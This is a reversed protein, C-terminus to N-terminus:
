QGLSVRAITLPSLTGSRVVLRGARDRATLRFLRLGGVTDAAKPDAKAGRLDFLDVKGTWGAPMDLALRGNEWHLFAEARAPASHPRVGIATVGSGLIAELAGSLYAYPANWNIAIENSAYANQDDLYSLAPIISPYGPTKDEQGPNSGGVLLGPVPERVGDAASPRHHPFMPTNSGYGTVFSYGTANRGLLYDLANVASWLYTSDGTHRFAQLLLMGQNADGSNSGWYFDNNSMPVAYASTDARARIPDAVTMLMKKLTDANIRSYGADKADALSYIGLALVNSWSPVSFTPPLAGPVAAVYFSDEGTALYLEAGAWFFEDVASNDGYEGTNIAPTFSKNIDAQRYYQTPHLRAWDWAKRAIALASDAFGPLPGDFKRFLRSAYAATAALDLSATVSKKVVYRRAVDNEPMIFASFEATTLKHYVGGDNPDQMALMFRLNWLAEDLLDPIANGSEPINLKLTDFFAPYHAYLALLTYTSIGSNVVYKNYDGADYWGKGASIITGEPRADSAASGHVAVRNDPHGPNRAWKGANAAALTCSARQYYFGRIAGRVTEVHAHNDILFPYSVGKGTVGLVYQGPKSLASFDALRVAEASPTWTKEPGLDGQFVTDALNPTAVFFRTAAGANVVVGKKPDQPHFGIQNVRIDPSVPMSAAATRLATAGALGICLIGM